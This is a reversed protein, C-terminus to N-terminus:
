HNLLEDELMYKIMADIAKMFLILENKKDLKTWFKLFQSPPPPLSVVLSIAM